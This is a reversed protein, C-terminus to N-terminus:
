SRTAIGEGALRSNAQSGDTSIGRFAVSRSDEILPLTTILRVKVTYQPACVHHSSDSRHHKESEHHSSDKTGHRGSSGVADDPWKRFHFKFLVFVNFAQPKRQFASIRSRARGCM